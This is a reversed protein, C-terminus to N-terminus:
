SKVSPARYVHGGKSIFSPSSFFKTLVKISALNTAWLFTNTPTFTWGHNLFTRNISVTRVLPVQQRQIYYHRLSFQFPYLRCRVAHTFVLLQPIFLEEYGLNGIQFNRFYSLSFPSPFSPLLCVELAQNKCLWTYHNCLPFQLLFSSIASKLM